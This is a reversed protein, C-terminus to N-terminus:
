IVGHKKAIIMMELGLFIVGFLVAVTGFIRGFMSGKRFLAIGAGIFAAGIMVVM